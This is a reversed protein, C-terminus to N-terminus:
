PTLCGAEEKDRNLAACACYRDPMKCLEPPSVFAASLTANTVKIIDKIYGEFEAHKVNRSHWKFLSLHFLMLLGAAEVELSTVTDCFNAHWGEPTTNEDCSIPAFASLCGRSCCLWKVHSNIGTVSALPRDITEDLESFLRYYGSFLWCMECLTYTSYKLQNIVDVHSCSAIIGSWGIGTLLKCQLSDSTQKAARFTVNLLLAFQRNYCSCTCM